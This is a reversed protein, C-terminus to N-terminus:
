LIGDNIGTRLWIITAWIIMGNRKSWNNIDEQRRRNRALPKHFKSEKLDGDM